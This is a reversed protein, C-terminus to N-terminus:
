NKPNAGYKNDGEAGKGVILYIFFFPILQYWGNVGVDHCRKSGQALLFVLSALLAIVFILEPLEPSLSSVFYYIIISIGYETRRIRGNFSWVKKFMKTSNKQEDVGENSVFKKKKQIPEAETKNKVSQDKNKGQVKQKTKFPNPKNMDFASVNEGGTNSIKQNKTQTQINIFTKIENIEHAPTWNKLGEFWVLTDKSIEKKLLEHLKVPGHREEGDFYFYEKM